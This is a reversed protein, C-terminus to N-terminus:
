VYMAVHSEIVIDEHLFNIKDGRDANIELMKQLMDRRDDKSDKIEEKRKNVAATSLKEIHQLATMSGGVNSLYIVSLMFFLKGLYSPLVGGITFAPLISSMANLSNLVDRREKMFGFMKGYFLEGIV